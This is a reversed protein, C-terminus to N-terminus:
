FSWLDRTLGKSWLKEDEPFRPPLIQGWQFIIESEGVVNREDISHCIWCGITKRWAASIFKCRHQSTNRFATCPFTMCVGNIFWGIPMLQKFPVALEVLLVICKCWQQTHTCVFRYSYIYKWVGLVQDADREKKKGGTTSFLLKDLLHCPM